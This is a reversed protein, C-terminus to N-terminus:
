SFQQGISLSARYTILDYCFNRPFKGGWDEPDFFLGWSNAWQKSLMDDVRFVSTIILNRPVNQGWRWPGLLCPSALLLRGAWSRRQKSLTYEVRFISATREESVDVSKYWVVNLWIGYSIRCFAKIGEWLTAEGSVLSPTTPTHPPSVHIYAIGPDTNWRDLYGVLRSSLCARPFPFSPVVDRNDTALGWARCLFMCNIMKDLLLDVAL